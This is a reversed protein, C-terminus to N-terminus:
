RRTSSPSSSRSASSRPTSGRHAREERRAGRGGGHDGARGADRVRSMTWGCCTLETFLPLGGLYEMGEPTVAAFTFGMIAPSPRQPYHMTGTITFERQTNDPLEITIRDGIQANLYDLGMWELMLEDKADPWEGAVYPFSDVQMNAFDAVSMLDINRWTEEGWCSARGCRSRARRRSRRRADRGRTRAFEDDFPYTYLIARAMLTSDRDSHFERLLLTQAALVTGVAYVGVAVALAVILTRTRHSWLDSIVKYWRIRIM